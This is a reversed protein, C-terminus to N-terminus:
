IVTDDAFMSIQGIHVFQPLDNIYLLLLMPELNVYYVLSCSKKDHMRLCDVTILIIMLPDIGICVKTCVHLCGKM